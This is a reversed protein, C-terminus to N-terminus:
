EGIKGKNAFWLKPFRGKAMPDFFHTRIGPAFRLLSSHISGTNFHQHPTQPGQVHLLSGKKWPVKKDDIISHGEGELIYIIAEMHAHKGGYEGPGEGMINSISIERNQFGTQGGDMLWRWHRHTHMTSQWVQPKGTEKGKFKDDPNYTIVPADELRLAIRRGQSDLGDASHPAEVPRDNSGKAELQDLKGLGVYYELHLASGSFYRVTAAGTNYHQHQAGFPIWLVSGKTWGYKVGDVISFGEGEVIYIAEEGHAHRGTHSGPPIEAVMTESGWTRFGNEPAALLAIRFDQPTEVWELEEEHIVTRAQNREKVSEDWFNLWTDYFNAM